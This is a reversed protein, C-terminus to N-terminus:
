GRRRGVPWLQVQYREAAAPELRRLETLATTFGDGPLARAEEFRDLVANHNYAIVRVGYSGAGSALEIGVQVASDLSEAICWSEDPFDLVGEWAFDFPRQDPLILPM